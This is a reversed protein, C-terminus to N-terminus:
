LSENWEDIWEDVTKERETEKIELSSSEACDM